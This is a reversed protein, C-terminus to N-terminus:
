KPLNREAVKLGEIVVDTCNWWLAKYNHYKNEGWWRRIIEWNPCPITHVQPTRGDEQTIDDNLNEGFLPNSLILRM